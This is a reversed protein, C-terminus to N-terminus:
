SPSMSHLFEIGKTKKIDHLMPRYEPVMPNIDLTRSVTKIVPDTVVSKEGDKQATALPNDSWGSALSRIVPV